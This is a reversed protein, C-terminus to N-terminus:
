YRQRYIEPLKIKLNALFKDGDIDVQAGSLFYLEDAQLPVCDASPSM